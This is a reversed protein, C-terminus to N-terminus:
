TATRSLEPSPTEAGQRSPSRAGLALGLALCVLPIAPIVYRVDFAALFPPSAVLALATVGPLLADWRRRVLATALAGVLALM